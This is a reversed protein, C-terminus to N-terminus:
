SSIPSGRVSSISRSIEGGEVRVLDALRQDHELARVVRADDLGLGVLDDRRHLLVAHRDLVDHESVFAM